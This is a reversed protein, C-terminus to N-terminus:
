FYPVPIIFTTSLLPHSNFFFHYTSKLYNIPQGLCKNYMLLLKITVTYCLDSLVTYGWVKCADM